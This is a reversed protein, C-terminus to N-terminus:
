KEEILQSLDYLPLGTKAMVLECLTQMQQHYVDTSLQTELITLLSQPSRMWNWRVVKSPSSLEYIVTSTYGSLLGPLKYCAFLRAEQWSVFGGYGDSLGNETANITNRAIFFPLFSAVFAILALILVFFFLPSFMWFSPSFIMPLTALVMTLLTLLAFIGIHTRKIRETIM